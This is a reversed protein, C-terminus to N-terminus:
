LVEGGCKGYLHAEWFRRDVQRFGLQLGEKGPLSGQGLSANTPWVWGQRNEGTGLVFNCGLLEGTPWNKSQLSKEGLPQGQGTMTGSRFSKLLKENFTTNPIPKEGRAQATDIEARKNKKQM